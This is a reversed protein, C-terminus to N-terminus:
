KKPAIEPVQPVNCVADTNRVVPIFNRSSDKPTFTIVFVVGQGKVRKFVWDYTEEYGTGSPYHAILVPRMRANPYTEDTFTQGSTIKSYDIAVPHSEVPRGISTDTSKPSAVESSSSYLWGRVNFSGLDFGKIGKNELAITLSGICNEQDSDNSWRLESTASVRYELTPKVSEWFSWYAWFGAVVLALIQALKNITDVAKNTRDSALWPTMHEEEPASNLATQWDIVLKRRGSVLHLVAQHRHGTSSRQGIKRSKNNSSQSSFNV